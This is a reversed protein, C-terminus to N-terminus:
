ALGLDVVELHTQIVTLAQRVEIYRRAMMMWDKIIGQLVDGRIQNVERAASDVDGKLLFWKARSMVSGVDNGDTYPGAEQRFMFMSAIRSVGFSIPGISNGLFQAQWLAKEMCEFKSNVDEMCPVRGDLGHLVGHVVNEDRGGALNRLDRLWPTVNVSCDGDLADWLGRVMVWMSRVRESREVSQAARLTCQELQVLRLSLLDLRALRSDREDDVRSQIEREWSKSLDDIRSALEEQHTESLLTAQSVLQEALRATFDHSLEARALEM